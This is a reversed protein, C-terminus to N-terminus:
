AARSITSGATVMRRRRRMRSRFPWSNRNGVWSLIRLGYEIAEEYPWHADYYGMLKDLMALYMRELLAREYLCWDQYWRVLLHGHYLHVAQHVHEVQQTDSLRLFHNLM